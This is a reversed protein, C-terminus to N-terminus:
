IFVLPLSCVAHTNGDTGDNHALQLCAFRSSILALGLSVWSLRLM